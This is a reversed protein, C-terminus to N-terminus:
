AAAAQGSAAHAAAEADIMARRLAALVDSSYEGGKTELRAVADAPTAGRAVLDDYDTAVRLLQGGFTLRDSAPLSGVPMNAVSFPERQRCVMERVSDLRRVEALLDRAVLPHSAVAREDDDSLTAGSALAARTGPSLALCGIQSMRAAVEFEWPQSVGMEGAVCTVIRTIRVTRQHVEPAVFRLLETMLRSAELLTGAVSIREAVAPM